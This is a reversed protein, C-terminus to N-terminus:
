NPNNLRDAENNNGCGDLRASNKYQVLCFKTWHERGFIDEYTVIGWVYTQYRGQEVLGRMQDTLVVETEVLQHRVGGNPPIIHMSPEEGIDQFDTLNPPLPKDRLEIYCYSRENYAPTNGANVFTLGAAIKKGVEFQTLSADKVAVYATESYQVAKRTDSLGCQMAKWQKHYIFAQFVIAVVILANLLSGMFFILRNSISNPWFSIFIVFGLLGLGFLVILWFGFSFFKEGNHSAKNEHSQPYKPKPM